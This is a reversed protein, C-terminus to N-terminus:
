SPLTDLDATAPLGTSIDLEVVRQPYDYSHGNGDPHNTIVPGTPEFVLRLAGTDTVTVEAVLRSAVLHDAGGDPRLRRLTVPGTPAPPPPTPRPPPEQDRPIGAQAFWGRGQWRDAPPAMTTVLDMAADVAEQQARHFDEWSEVPADTDVQPPEPEVDAGVVEDEDFGEGALPAAWPTVWGGQEDAGIPELSGLELAAVQADLGVRVATSASDVCTDMNDQCYLVWVCGPAPYLRATAARAPLPADPWCVLRVSADAGRLAAVPRHRDVLFTVEGVVVPRLPDLPDVAVMVAADWILPVGGPKYVHKGTM